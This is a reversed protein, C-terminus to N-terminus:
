RSRPKKAKRAGPPRKAKPSKPRSRTGRGRRGASATPAPPPLPRPVEPGAESDSRAPAQRPVVPGPPPPPPPLPPAPPPDLGLRAALSKEAEYPLGLSRARERERGAGTAEGTRTLTAAHLLRLRPDDPTAQLMSELEQRAERWAQTDILAAILHARVALRRSDEQLLERYARIEEQTRGTAGLVAARGIRADVNAPDVALAEDFAANAEAHLGLALLSQGIGIRAPLFEPKMQSAQRYFRLALAPIGWDAWTKARVMVDDLQRASPLLRERGPSSAAPPSDGLLAGLGLGRVLEHFRPGDVVAGGRAVVEQTLALPMRAPALVVLRAGVNGVEEELRLVFSLSVEEPNEVFAYLFQDATKVLMGESVQRVAAMSQGMAELLDTVLQAFEAQVV